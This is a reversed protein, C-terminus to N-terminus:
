DGAFHPELQVEGLATLRARALDAKFLQQAAYGAGQPSPAFIRYTGSYAGVPEGRQNATAPVSATMAFTTM